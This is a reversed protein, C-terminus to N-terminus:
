VSKEIEKKISEKPLSILAEVKPLSTENTVKIKVHSQHFSVTLASSFLNLAHHLTNANMIFCLSHLSGDCQKIRTKQIGEYGEKKKQALIVETFSGKKKFLIWTRDRERKKPITELLNLLPERELEVYGDGGKFFLNRIDEQSLDKKTFLFSYKNPKKLMNFYPFETIVEDENEFSPMYFVPSVAEDHKIRVVYTREVLYGYEEDFYIGSTHDDGKWSLLSWERKFLMAVDYRTVM